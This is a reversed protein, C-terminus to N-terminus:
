SHDRHGASSSTCCDAAPEIGCSSTQSPTERRWRGGTRHFRSALSMAMRYPFGASPVGPYTADWLWALKSHGTALYRGDRSCAITWCGDFLRPPTVMVKVDTAIGIEWTRVEGINDASALHRGDASFALAGVPALHGKLRRLQAMTPLDWVVVRGDSSGSALRTGDPSFALGTVPGVHGNLFDIPRRLDNM